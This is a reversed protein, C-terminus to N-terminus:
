ARLKRRVIARVAHVSKQNATSSALVVMEPHGDAGLFRVQVHPNRRHREVEYRVGAADLEEVVADLQENRRL